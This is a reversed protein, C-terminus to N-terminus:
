YRHTHKHKHIHTHTYTGIHTHTYTYIHTHTYTHIHTHTYTHIHTHTYTHIHTQTYTHIHTHTVEGKLQKAMKIEEASADAKKPKNAKQPFLILKSKYEKLRQANKQLSNMSKNTRRHDVAIGITRAYGKCMGASKIEELTFGKGLRQKVNYRFTPCRVVPRLKGIPRPAVRRAKEQRKVRRRHKRAPQNFWTRVYRQWDKHFHGNPIINNRKPAMTSGTPERRVSRFPGM